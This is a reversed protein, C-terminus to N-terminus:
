KNKTPTPQLGGNRKEYDKIHADLANAIVDKIQLRDWYAIAKIKELSAENVIFTARTESEKTGIQSTKTIARTSAKEAKDSPNIVDDQSSTDGLLSSLGGSFDKKNKM